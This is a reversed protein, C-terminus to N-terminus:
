EIGDKARIYAAQKRQRDIMKEMPSNKRYAAATEKETIKRQLEGDPITAWYIFLYFIKTVHKTINRM